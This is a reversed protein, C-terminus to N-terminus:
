ICLPLMECYFRLSTQKCALSGALQQLAATLREAIKMLLQDGVDYGLSDNIVQFRDLNVLLVAILPPTQPQNETSLPAFSQNLWSLFLAQTPLGTLSDYYAQRRWLSLPLLRQVNPDLTNEVAPPTTLSNAVEPERELVEVLHMLRDTNSLAIELMRQGREPLTGLMGTMLLGLAARISTLPTRLEYSVLAAIDDSNPSSPAVPPECGASHPPITSQEQM